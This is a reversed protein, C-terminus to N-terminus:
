TLESATVGIEKMLELLNCESAGVRDLVRWSKRIASWIEVQSATESAQRTLAELTMNIWIRAEREEDTECGMVCGTVCLPWIVYKLLQAEACIKLLKVAQAVCAKIEGVRPRTGSQITYMYILAAQRFLATTKSALNIHYGCQSLQGGSGVEISHGLNCCAPTREPVSEEPECLAGDALLRQEIDYAKQALEKVSLREAKVELRKWRALGNIESIYELVQQSCVGPGVSLIWDGSSQQALWM